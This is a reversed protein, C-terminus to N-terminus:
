FKSKYRDGGDCIITCITKGPGLKKALRVAAVVNIAASPGINIGDYKRLHHAMEVAEIDPIQIAGDVQAKDFNNTIRDIGIGEAM